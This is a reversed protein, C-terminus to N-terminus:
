SWNLVNQCDIEITTEEAASKMRRDQKQYALSEHKNEPTKLVIKIARYFLLKYPINFSEIEFFFDTSEFINLVYRTKNLDNMM